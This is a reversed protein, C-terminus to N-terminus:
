YTIKRNLMYITSPGAGKRSLIGIESFHKLHRESKRNNFNFHKSYEKKSIQQLTFIYEVGIKEEDSLQNFLKEDTLAPLDKITRFFTLGLFPKTFSYIPLPLNYKRPLSKYTEMGLGRREVM